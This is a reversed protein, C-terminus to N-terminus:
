RVEFAGELHAAIFFSPGDAAESEVLFVPDPTALGARVMEKAVRWSREAKSGRIRRDLRQLWGQNRFQKVVVKAPGSATEIVATYLYNRGWHITEVASSPDVLRLVEGVVDAPRHTTALEGRYGAGVFPEFPPETPAKM